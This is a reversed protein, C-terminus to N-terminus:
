SMMFLRIHLSEFFLCFSFVFLCVKLDSLRVLGDDNADFVLFVPLFHQDVLKVFEGFEISKIPRSILNSLSGVVVVCRYSHNQDFARFFLAADESSM